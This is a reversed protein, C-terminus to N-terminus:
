LAFTLHLGPGLRHARPPVQVPALDVNESPAPSSQAARATVAGWGRAPSPGRKGCATGGATGGAERPSVFTRETGAARREGAAGRAPRPGM